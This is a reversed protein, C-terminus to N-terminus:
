RDVRRLRNLEADLLPAVQDWADHATAISEVVEPRAALLEHRQTMTKRRMWTAVICRTVSLLWGGLAVGDRITRAKQTLVLFAAQAVDEALNPDRVQRLASSYVLPQYRQILEELANRSGTQVYELLLRRDDSM